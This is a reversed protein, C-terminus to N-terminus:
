KLLFMTITQAKNIQPKQKLVLKNQYRYIMVRQGSDAKKKYKLFTRSIVICILQNYLRLHIFHKKM